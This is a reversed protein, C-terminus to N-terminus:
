YPNPNESFFNYQRFEIDVLNIKGSNFLFKKFCLALKIINKRQVLVVKTLGIPWAKNDVLSVHYYTKKTHGM